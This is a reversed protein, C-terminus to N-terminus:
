SWHKQDQLQLSNLDHPLALYPRPLGRYITGRGHHLFFSFNQKAQSRSSASQRTKNTQRTCVHLSISVETQIEELDPGAQAQSTSGSNNSAAFMSTSSIQLERHFTDFSSARHRLVHGAKLGLAGGTSGVLATTSNNRRNANAQLSPSRDSLFSDLSGASSTTEVRIPSGQPTIYLSSSRFSQSSFARIHGRGRSHSHSSSTTNSRSRRLEEEFDRPSTFRAAASPNTLEPRTM